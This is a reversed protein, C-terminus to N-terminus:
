KPVFTRTPCQGTERDGQVEHGFCSGKSDDIPKYFKCENCTQMAEGEKLTLVSKNRIDKSETAARAVIVVAGLAQLVSVSHFNAVIGYKRM